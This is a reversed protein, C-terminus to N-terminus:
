FKEIIMIDFVQNQNSQIPYKEFFSNNNQKIGILQNNIFLDIDNPIFGSLIIATDSKEFDFIIIDKSQERRQIWKLPFGVLMTEKETLTKTINIKVPSSEELQNSKILISDQVTNLTFSTDSLLRTQIPQAVDITPILREVNVKLREGDLTISQEYESSSFLNSRRRQKKILVTKEEPGFHYGISFRHEADSVTKDISYITNLHNYSYDINWGRTKIGVGMTMDSNKYGARASFSPTSKATGYLWYEVGTYIRPKSINDEREIDLGLKITDNELITGLGLNIVWPQSDSHNTTWKIKTSLPNKITLATLLKQELITFDKKMALDILYGSASENELQENFLGLRCGFNTRLFRGTVSTFITYVEQTFSSGTLTPQNASNLTTYPINSTGTYILGLKLWRKNFPNEISFGILPNEQLTTQNLRMQTYNEESKYAWNHFIADPGYALANFAGGMGVAHAGFRNYLVATSAKISTTALCCLLLCIWTYKQFSLLRKSKRKTYLTYTIKKDM